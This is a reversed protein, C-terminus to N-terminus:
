RQSITRTYEDKAALIEDRVKEPDIVGWLTAEPMQSATSATQVKIIWMGLARLLPGQALELDTIKDLPITKRSKFLLGKEVRLARHDYCYRLAAAQRPYFLAILGVQLIILILGVGFLPLFLIALIMGVWGHYAVIKTRDINIEKEM